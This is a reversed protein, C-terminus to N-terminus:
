KLLEKAKSRLLAILFPAGVLSTIIGVPIEAMAVTRALTDVRELASAIKAM